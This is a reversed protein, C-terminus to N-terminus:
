LHEGWCFGLRELLKVALQSYLVCAAVSAYGCGQVHKWKSLILVASRATM